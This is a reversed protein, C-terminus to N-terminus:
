DSRRRAARRRRQEARYKKMYARMYVRRQPRRAAEMARSGCKISCYVQRRVRDFVMGCYPCRRLHRAHDWANKAKEYQRKLWVLEARTPLARIERPPERDM